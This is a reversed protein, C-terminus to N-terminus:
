SNEFEEQYVIKSCIDTVVSDLSSELKKIDSYATKLLDKDLDASDAELEKKLIDFNSYISKIRTNMETSINKRFKSDLNQNYNVQSKLCDTWNCNPAIQNIQIKTRM